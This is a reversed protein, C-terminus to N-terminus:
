SDHPCTERVMDEEAVVLIVESSKSRIREPVRGGPVGTMARAPLEERQGM